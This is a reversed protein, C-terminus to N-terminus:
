SCVKIGFALASLFSSIAMVQRGQVMYSPSNIARVCAPTYGLVGAEKCSLFCRIGRPIALIYSEPFTNYGHGLLEVTNFRIVVVKNLLLTYEENSGRRCFPSHVDRGFVSGGQTDEMFVANGVEVLGSAPIFSRCM